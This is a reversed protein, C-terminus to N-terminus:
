LEGEERPGQPAGSAASERLWGLAEVRAAFRELTPAEFLQRLPAEIHHQAALRGLMQVATLSHGGLAFFDDKRGVRSVHLLEAWLGAIAQETESVPPAYEAAASMVKPLPLARRDVKGSPTLPFKELFVYASPVMTPPLKARLMQQLEAATPAPTKRAVLYATLRQRGTPDTSVQVLADRVAPHATLALEVEAAEIRVGHFKIQSDKRGLHELCGDARLRGVDGTLYVREDGGEPDPRFAKATLDPRQWYGPSLYRSRVAIQGIEGAPLPQEADNLILVEKDEVAYGAPVNGSLVESRQTLFHLRFNNTETTGLRNVFQCSAPFHRCYLEWDVRTVPEGGLTVIRVAPFQTEPGSMEMLHRFTTPAWSFITIREERLWRDLADLGDTKVNWPYLTAGNLLASFLDVLGSSFSCSHLMTVRDETGIGFAIGYSRANQLVNRHPHVIGKPEGTSGSSFVLYALTDPAVEIRPNEAPLAEPLTELDIVAGAGMLRSAMAAHASDTVITHAGSLSLMAVLRDEPYAPDLPVLLKGAKLVGLVAPVVHFGTPLLVAVPEALSPSAEMLRHALRNAAANLGAYSLSRERTRVAVRGPAAAALTEIRRGLSSELASKPFEAETTAM